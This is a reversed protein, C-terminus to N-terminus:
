ITDPPPPPPTVRRPESNTEFESQIKAAENSQSVMVLFVRSLVSYKWISNLQLFLGKQGTKEDPFSHDKM